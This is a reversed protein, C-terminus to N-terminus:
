NSKYNYYTISAEAEPQTENGGNSHLFSLLHSEEEIMGNQRRSNRGIGGRGTM